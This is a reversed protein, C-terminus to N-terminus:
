KLCNYGYLEKPDINKFISLLHNVVLEDERGQWETLFTSSFYKVASKNVKLKNLKIKNIISVIDKAKNAEYAIGYKVFGSMDYFDAQTKYYIPVVGCIAAELHIGSEGGILCCLNGFFDSVSEKNTDKYQFLSNNKFINIFKNKILNSTGPHFRIRVKFGLNILKFCIKKFIELDDLRNIAIGIQDKKNLDLKILKRKNGSLFIHRVSNKKLNLSNDIENKHYIDLSAQGDLFIYNHGLPPFLTSVSSHQLYVTKINLIEAALKLSRCSVNTDNSMLVFKPKYKYLQDLFYPLYFYSMYFQNIFYSIEKSNSLRKLNIHLLPAKLAFLLLIVCFLKLNIQLPKTYKKLQEDIQVFNENVLHIEYKKELFKLITRSISTYQNNSEAYAYIFKKSEKSSFFSLKKITYFLFILFQFFPGSFKKKLQLKNIVKSKKGYLYALNLESEVKFADLCKKLILFFSM